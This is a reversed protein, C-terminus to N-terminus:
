CYSAIQIFLDEVLEIIGKRSRINVLNELFERVITLIEKSAEM